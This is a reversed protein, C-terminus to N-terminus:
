PTLLEIGAFRTFHQQNYTYIRAVSNAMMTAVLFLDFIEQRAVQPHHQLREITHELATNDPYIRLINDARAYKEMEARAEESSRPTTVHRPNTIVAFFKMLVQPTVMLPIEGRFGRDRLQRSPEHFSSSMDAAYVLVNTDVLARNDSISM